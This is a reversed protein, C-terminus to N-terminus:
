MLAHIKELLYQLNKVYANMKKEQFIRIAVTEVIMGYAVIVKNMQLMLLLTDMVIREKEKIVM